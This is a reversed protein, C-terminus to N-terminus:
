CPKPELLAALEDPTNASTAAVPDLGSSEFDGEAVEAVQLVDLWAMLSRKGMAAVEAAAEFANSRYLACLPQRHGSLLPVAADAGGLKLALLNVVSPEFRPLDCSAVFVLEHSASFAALAALPGGFKEADALFAAGPVAERGLVTVPIGAVTLAAVIREAQAVGDIPIQSKDTGMRRSAGGTLVVAEISM